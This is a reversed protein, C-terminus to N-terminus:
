RVRLWRRWVPLLRNIGRRIARAREVPSPVLVTYTCYRSLTPNTDASVILPVIWDADFAREPLPRLRAREVLLREAPREHTTAHLRQNAVESQWRAAQARLDALSAFARGYFFSHRVYKIATEVRGKFEPYRLPAAVPEFRYHGALALFRPNFQITSGVRQLVVSKLNDYVVRRPVGGFRELSRLISSAEEETGTHTRIEERLASGTLVACRARAISFSNLV